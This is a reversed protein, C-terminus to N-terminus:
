VRGGMNWVRACTSVRECRAERGAEGRGGEGTGRGGAGGGGGGRVGKEGGREGNGGGLTKSRALAISVADSTM